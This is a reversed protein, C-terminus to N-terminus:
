SIESNLANNLEIASDIIGDPPLPVVDIAIKDQSKKMNNRFTM